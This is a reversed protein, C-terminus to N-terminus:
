NKQGCVKCIKGFFVLKGGCFRCLGQNACKKSQEIHIKEIRMYELRKQELRKQEEEKEKELREKEKRQIEAQWEKESVLQLHQQWSDKNVNANQEM